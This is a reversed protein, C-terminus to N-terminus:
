YLSTKTLADELNSDRELLGHMTAVEHFTSVLIGGVIRLYDFSLPGRVYNLLIWM